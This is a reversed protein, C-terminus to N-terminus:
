WHWCQAVTYRCLCLTGATLSLQGVSIRDPLRAELGSMRSTCTDTYEWTRVAYAASTHL